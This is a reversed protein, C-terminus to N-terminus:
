KKDSTLLGDILGLWAAVREEPSDLKAAWFAAARSLGAAAEAKAIEGALQGRYAVDPYAQAAKLARQFVQRATEADGIAAWAAAVERIAIVDTGGGIPIKAAAELAEALSAKAGAHDGGASQVKAIERFAKCRSYPFVLSNATRLAGAVDGGKAQYIALDSLTYDREEDDKIRPVLGVADALRGNEALSLILQKAIALRQAPDDLADLAALAQPLEGLGAQMVILWEAANPSKAQKAHERMQLFTQRAGRAQGKALQVKGIEYLTRTRVVPDDLTSAVRQADEIDSAELRALAILVLTTAHFSTQKLEKALSLAADLKRDAALSEAVASLNVQRILESEISRCVAVAQKHDSRSLLAEVVQARAFDRFRQESITGITKQAGAIDGIEAQRIAVAALLSEDDKRSLDGLTGVARLAEQISARAAEREGARAQVAALDLWGVARQAPDAIQKVAASARDLMEAIFKAHETPPAAQEQAEVMGPSCVFAIAGMRAILRRFFRAGDTKLKANM